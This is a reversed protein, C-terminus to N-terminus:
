KKKQSRSYWYCIHRYIKLLLKEDEIKDLMIKILEKTSM